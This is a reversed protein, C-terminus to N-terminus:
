KIIGQIQNHEQLLRTKLTLSENLDPYKLYVQCADLVEKLLMHKNMIELMIEYIKPLYIVDNAAYM